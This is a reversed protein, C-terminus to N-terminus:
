EVETRGRHPPSGSMSSERRPDILINVVVRRSWGGGGVIEVICSEHAREFRLTYRGPDDDEGTPTWRVLPMERRYFQQLAAKDAKGEYSHSLHGPGDDAGKKGAAQVLVFGRPIPVDTIQPAASAVLPEAPRTPALCGPLGGFTIVALIAATPCALKIVQGFGRPISDGIGRIAPLQTAPVPRAVASRKWNVPWLIPM